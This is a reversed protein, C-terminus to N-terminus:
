HALPFREDLALNIALVNVRPEGLIGLQRPSTFEYVLAVARQLDLGRAKAVRAAQWRAAAQSIHPDLGSGSATVLDAPVGGYNGPNAEKAATIRAAVQDVLGQNTPGLNSAGSNNAEYGTGAMSPRPHFYAEGTFAQAILASGIVTGDREILSGNAQEPFLVQALGTVALPYAVGTLLTLAAFLVLAPRLTRLM